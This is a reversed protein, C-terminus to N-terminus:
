AALPNVLGARVHQVRRALASPTGAAAFSARSISDRKLVGGSLFPTIEQHAYKVVYAERGADPM